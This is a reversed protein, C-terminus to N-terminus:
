NSTLYVFGLGMDRLRKSVISKSINLKKAIESRWYGALYLKKIKENEIKTIREYSNERLIIHKKMHEKRTTIELNDIENHDKWGDKHHIIEHDRLKRGLHLEMIYRHLLMSKGKVRIRQYPEVM